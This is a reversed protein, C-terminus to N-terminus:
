SRKLRYAHRWLDHHKEFAKITRGTTDYIEINVNRILSGSRLTLNGDTPNPFLSFVVEYISEIDDWLVTVNTSAECGNADVVYVIYDGQPLNDPDALNGGLQKQGLFITIQLVM